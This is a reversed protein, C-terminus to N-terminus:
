SYFAHSISWRTRDEIELVGHSFMPVRRKDTPSGPNFLLVGGHYRLYPIHSHGFIVLDVDEGKFAEEARKETTKGKGDGHVIGIRVDNIVTVRKDPLVRKIDHGDVNGAVGILEGFEKLRNYVELDQFDGGHIILESEKLDAILEEPFCRGKRQMHTDSLVTIKM